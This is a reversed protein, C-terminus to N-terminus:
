KLGEYPLLVIVTNRVALANGDKIEIKGVVPSDYNSLRYEYLYAFATNVDSISDYLLVVGGNDQNSLEIRYTGAPFDEGATYVGSPVTIGSPKPMEDVAPMETPEPELTERVHFDFRAFTYDVNMIRKDNLLGYGGIKEGTEGILTFSRDDTQEWSCITNEEEIIRDETFRQRSYFAINDPFIRMIIIETTFDDLDKITAWAGTFAPESFAVSFLFIVFIFLFAIIKKM